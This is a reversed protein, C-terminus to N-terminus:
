TRRCLSEVQDFTEKSYVLMEMFVEQNEEKLSDHIEVIKSATESDLVVVDGSFTTLEFNNKTETIKRVGHIFENKLM